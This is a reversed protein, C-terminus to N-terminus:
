RLVIRDATAFIPPLEIGAAAFAERPMGIDAVVIEGCVARASPQLMGTKVLALTVTRTAIVCPTGPEGTDADLGSPLDVALVPAPSALAAEILRATDGRPSGGAGFGLLADIVLDATPLAIVGASPLTSIHGLRAWAERNILTAGSSRAASHSPWVEVAAGWGHLHRAAVCGDGGNGGSGALIVVRKDRPDGGLLRRAEAAVARGAMEMLPLPGVGCRELALRDVERMQGSTVSYGADTRGM